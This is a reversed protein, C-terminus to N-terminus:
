SVCKEVLLTEVLMKQFWSTRTDRDLTYPHWQIKYSTAVLTTEVLVTKWEIVLKWYCYVDEGYVPNLGWWWGIWNEDKKRLEKKKMKPVSKEEIM